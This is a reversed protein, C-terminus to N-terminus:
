KYLDEYLSGLAKKETEKCYEEFCSNSLLYVSAHKQIVEKYKEQRLKPRIRKMARKFAMTSSINGQNCLPFTFIKTIIELAM